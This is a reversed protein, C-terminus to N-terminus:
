RAYEITCVWGNLQDGPKGTGTDNPNDGRSFEAIRIM